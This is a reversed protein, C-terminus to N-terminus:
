YAAPAQIRRHPSVVATIASAAIPHIAAQRATINV